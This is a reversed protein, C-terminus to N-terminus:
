HLRLLFKGQCFAFGAAVLTEGLASPPATLFIVPGQGSAINGADLDLFDTLLSLNKAM